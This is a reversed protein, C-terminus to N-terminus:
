GAGMTSAMRCSGTTKGAGTGVVEGSMRRNNDNLSIPAAEAAQM